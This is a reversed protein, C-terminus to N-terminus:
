GLGTLSARTLSVGIIHLSMTAMVLWVGVLFFGNVALSGPRIFLTIFVSGFLSGLQTRMLRYNILQRRTLPAPFLFQVESRSFTLAAQNAPWLWAVAAIFMLVGATLLQLQDEYGAIMQGIFAAGGLKRGTQM